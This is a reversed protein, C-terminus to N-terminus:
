KSKTKNKKDPSKSDLSFEDDVKEKLDGRQLAIERVLLTIEKDMNEIMGYMKFLLYYSGILGLILIVDLGRGIGTLHAFTNTANPFISIWIVILWILTWLFAMGVSMKHDKLRLVAIIIAIIGILVGIDQYLIM